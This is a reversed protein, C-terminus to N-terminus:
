KGNTNRELYLKEKDTSIFVYFKYELLQKQKYIEKMADFKKSSELYKLIKNLELDQNCIEQLELNYWKEVNEKHQRQIERQKIMKEIEERNFNEEKLSINFDTCLIELARLSDVNFYRQTFSIIDYHRSEGFDHIGRNSVCFSPTKENRFPSKYWMTTRTTKMPEGLYKQIVDEASLLNKVEKFKNM